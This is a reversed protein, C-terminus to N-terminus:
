WGLGMEVEAKAGSRCNECMGELHLSDLLDLDADDLPDEVPLSDVGDESAGQDADSDSVAEGGRAEGSAAHHGARSAEQELAADVAAARSRVHQLELHAYSCAPHLRPPANAHRIGSCAGAVAYSYYYNCM